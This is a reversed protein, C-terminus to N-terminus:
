SDLYRLVDDYVGGQNAFHAHNRASSFWERTSPKVKKLAALLDADRLPEPAGRKLAERLKDEVASDVLAKLDAGSYDKTKAALKDCDVREQPKGALLGRLITARAGADPPPVFLIRDFRGPRRFAPDLHWPANTAGLVLVGENSKQVGDLEALFQAIVQRQHGAHMESRRAALADVEDFFLVCPKRRRAEEFLAHVNKESNGVWMDLVDHIGICLFTANCEGATARALLTKGCGPPGFMLIGGGIAKGYSKFLEPHLLPQIIKIGIEQKVADMGGVDAFKLTPRELESAFSREQPAGHGEGNALAEVEDADEDDHTAGAAAREYAIRREFDPDALSADADLAARYSARANTLDNARQAIRAALLHATADLEGRLKLSDLIVAAHSNKGSAFYCQALALKLSRDGPANQMLARYEVEAEDFRGSGRLTDALLRRLPANAPSLALAERLARIQEEQPTQAMRRLLRAALGFRACTECSKTHAEWSAEPRM